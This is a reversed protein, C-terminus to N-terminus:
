EKHFNYFTNYISVRPYPYLLEKLVFKKIFVKLTKAKKEPDWPYDELYKLFIKKLKVKKSESITLLYAKVLLNELKQCLKEKKILDNEKRALLLLSELNELINKFELEKEPPVNRKKLKKILDFIYDFIQFDIYNPFSFFCEIEKSFEDLSRALDCKFTIYNKKFMKVLKYLSINDIKEILDKYKEFFIYLIDKDEKLNEIEQCIIDILTKLKSM